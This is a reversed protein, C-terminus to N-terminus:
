IGGKDGALVPLGIAALSIYAVQAILSKYPGIAAAGFLIAFTQMTLPIPTFPLPIVVQASLITITTLVSIQIFASTRTRQWISDVIFPSVSLTTM